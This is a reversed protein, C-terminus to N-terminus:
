RVAVGRLQQTLGDDRPVGLCSFPSNVDQWCTTRASANVVTLEVSSVRDRDFLVRKAGDGRSDLRLLSTSTGGGRKYVTVVAQSGRTESAMDVLVKLEWSNATMARSPVFRASASTLHDLRVSAWTTANRTPSLTVPAWSLPPSPYRNAAGEDYTKRARRNADAFEAFVRGFSANRSGLEEAVAQLSYADAGGPAADARRWVNRVITPMGAVESAFRESLYRFWIWDGYHHSGGFWDLPIWPQGLPGDPLYQLNDDVGDFVEDEAWTATGEMFWGDEFADYAFQVAHFYEHAATVRMNQTPTGTPFEDAAYDDDLVCYAWADWEDEALLEDSTCYGYLAEPGIDALYIDTRADGGLSGDPKPKRYGADVYRGHVSAVADLTTDVFDPISNGDADTAAPADASTDVWHVCVDIDCAQRPTTGADYGHGGPDAAGDTPRALFADAERREAGTLEGRLRFLDRLVLTAERGHEVSGRAATGDAGGFLARVDDLAQRAHDSAAGPLQARPVNDPAAFSPVGLGLALTASALVALVPRTRM